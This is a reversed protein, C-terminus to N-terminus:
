ILIIVLFAGSLLGMTRYLRAYGQCRVRAGDLQLQLRSRINRIQSLQTELDFQGLTDSLEALIGADEGSLSGPQHTVAQKWAEPFPVGQRCLSSCLPLYAADSLSDRQELRGAIEDPPSLSYSLEGEFADLMTVAAELQIPGMMGGERGMIMAAVM